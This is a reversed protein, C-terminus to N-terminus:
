LLGSGHSHGPRGSAPEQLGAAGEGHAPALRQGRTHQCVSQELHVEGAPLERGHHHQPLPAAFCLSVVILALPSVADFVLAPILAPLFALVFALVLAPLSITYYFFTVIRCWYLALTHYGHM